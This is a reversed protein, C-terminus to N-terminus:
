SGSVSFTGGGVRALIVHGHYSAKVHGTGAFPCGFGDKTVKMTMESVTPVATLTGNALNLTTIDTLGSQASITAECTAATITIAKSVDCAIDVHHVYHGAGLRETAHWVYDCGNMNVTASLFGFATCGTTTVTVTVTSTPGTIDETPANYKEVKYHTDCTISGGPTTITSNGLVTTGTATCPYSSCTFEPTAEAASAGMASMAVVAIFALCLSKLKRSM